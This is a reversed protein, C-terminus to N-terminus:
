KVTFIQVCVGLTYYNFDSRIIKKKTDNEVEPRTMKSTETQLFFVYFFCLKLPYITRLISASTEYHNDERNSRM